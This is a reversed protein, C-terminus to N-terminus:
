FKVGKVMEFTLKKRKPINWYPSACVPCNRPLRNKWKRIWVNKCRYCVTLRDRVSDLFIKELNEKKFFETLNDKAKKMKM